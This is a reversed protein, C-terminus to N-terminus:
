RFYKEDYRSPSSKAHSASVSHLLGDTRVRDTRREPRFNSYDLYILAGNFPMYKAEINRYGFLSPVGHLRYDSRYGATNRRATV